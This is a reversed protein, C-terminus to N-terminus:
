SHAPHEPTPETSAADDALAAAPRAPVDGRLLAGIVARARGKEPGDAMADFLLAFEAAEDSIDGAQDLWGAPRGLRREIKAALEDGIGRRGALLASVHSKPSEVLAALAVVGGAEAVLSQLRQHRRLHRLTKIEVARSYAGQMCPRYASHQGAHQASQM